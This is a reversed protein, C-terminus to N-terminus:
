LQTPKTQQTDLETGCLARQIKFYQFIGVNMIESAERQKLLSIYLPQCKNM